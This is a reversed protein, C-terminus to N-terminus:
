PKSVTQGKEPKAMDGKIEDALITLLIGSRRTSGKEILSKVSTLKKLMQSTKPRISAPKFDRPTVMLDEM